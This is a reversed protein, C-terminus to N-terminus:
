AATALDQVRWNWPMLDDIRKAPHDLLAAADHRRRFSPDVLLQEVVM